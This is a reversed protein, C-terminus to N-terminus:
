ETFENSLYEHHGAVVDPLCSVIGWLPGREPGVLVIGKESTSEGNTHTRDLGKIRHPVAQERALDPIRRSRLMRTMINSWSSLVDERNRWVVCRPSLHSYAIGCGLGPCVRQDHERMGAAPAPPRGRKKTSMHAAVSIDDCCEIVGLDYGRFQRALFALGVLLLGRSLFGPNRVTHRVYAKEEIM